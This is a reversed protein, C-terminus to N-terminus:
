MEGELQEKDMELRSQSQEVTVVLQAAEKAQLL